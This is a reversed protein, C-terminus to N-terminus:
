YSAVVSRERRSATDMCILYPIIVLSLSYWMRRSSTEMVANVKPLSKVSAMSCFCIAWCDASLAFNITCYATSNFLAVIILASPSALAASYIPLDKVVLEAYM